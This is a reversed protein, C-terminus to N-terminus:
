LPQVLVPDAALESEGGAGGSGGGAGPDEHILIGHTLRGAAFAAEVEQCAPRFWQPLPKSTM